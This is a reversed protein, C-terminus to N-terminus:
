NQLHKKYIADIIMNIRSVDWKEVAQKHASEGLQKAYNPNDFLYVIDKALEGWDGPDILMGYSGNGLVEPIAGVRTSVVPKKAAMGELVSIPMNEGYSPLIVITAQGLLKLKQVGTIPGIFNINDTINAQRAIEQLKETARPDEDLGAFYVQTDPYSTLVDPLAKLVDFHGKRKGLSGLLLISRTRHHLIGNSYSSLKACDIPNPLIEIKNASVLHSLFEQWYSSLAIVTDTLRFFFRVAAQKLPHYEKYVADFSGGHLHFVTKRGLLKSVFL